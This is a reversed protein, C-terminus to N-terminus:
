WRKLASAHSGCLLIATRHLSAIAHPFVPPFSCQRSTYTGTQTSFRQQMGSQAAVAAAASPLLTSTTSAPVSARPNFAGNGATATLM